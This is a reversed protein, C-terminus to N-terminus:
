LDFLTNEQLHMDKKVTQHLLKLKVPAYTVYHLHYQVVNETVKVRHYLEFLTNEQLHMEEKVRRCLVKLSQM